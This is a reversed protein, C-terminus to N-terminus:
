RVEVVGKETLLGSTMKQTRPIKVKVMEGIYASNQAVGDITVQWGDAGAIVKVPDGNKVAMERRLSARWVIQGASIPKAAVSAAIDAESAAIDNSFTVEKLQITFDEARLREGAQVARSAIPVRKNVAIAGSIWYTRKSGDENVVELPLSFSGKPLDHGLRISWTSGAPVSAPVAPLSLSTIDIVCDSCFEKFRNRLEAEVDVPRLRFSKRVVTVRNPIRLHIKEGTKVEYDHLHQKFVQELGTSTFSRSEGPNPTDALRVNKIMDIAASDGGRAVIIDGLVIEPRKGDVEAVSKVQVVPEHSTTAADPANVALGMVSGTAVVLFKGLSLIM